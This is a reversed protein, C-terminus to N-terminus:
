CNVSALNQLNSIEARRQQVEQELYKSYEVLKAEIEELESDSKEELKVEGNQIQIILEKIDSNASKKLDAVFKEKNEAFTSTQVSETELVEVEKKYKFIKRFFEQIRQLIGQRVVVLSKSNDM